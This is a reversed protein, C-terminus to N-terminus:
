CVSPEVIMEAESGDCEGRPVSEDRTKEDELWFVRGTSYGVEPRRLVSSCAKQLRSVQCSHVM